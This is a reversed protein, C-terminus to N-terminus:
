HCQVRGLWLLALLESPHGYASHECIWLTLDLLTVCSGPISESKLGVEMHPCGASVRKSGSRRSPSSGGVMLMDLFSSRHCSRPEISGVGETAAQVM